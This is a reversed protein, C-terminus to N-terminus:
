LREGFIISLLQLLAWKSWVYTFEVILDKM